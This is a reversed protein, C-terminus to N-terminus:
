LLEATLEMLDMVKVQSDFGQQALHVREYCAPCDLLLIDAGVAEADRILNRAM